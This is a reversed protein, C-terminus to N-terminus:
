ADTTAADETTEDAAETEAVAEDAEDADAAEAETDDSEAPRIIIRSAVFGEDGEADSAVVVEAGATIDGAEIETAAMRTRSQGRRNTVEQEEFTVVETDEDIVVTVAEGSALSFSLSDAAAGEVVGQEMRMTTIGDATQITRETREVDADLGRLGGGMGDRMGRMGGMGPGFQMDAKGAIGQGGFGRDDRDRPGAAAVAATGAIVLAMTTGVVATARTTNKNMLNGSRM